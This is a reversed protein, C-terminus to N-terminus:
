SHRLMQSAEEALREGFELAQLPTLPLRSWEGQPNAIQVLVERTNASRSVGWHAETGEHGVYNHIM